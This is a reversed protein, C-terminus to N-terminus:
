NKRDLVLSCMMVTVSLKVFEEEKGTSTKKQKFKLKENILDKLFINIM